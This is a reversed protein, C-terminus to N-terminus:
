EIAAFVTFLSAKEKAKRTKYTLKLIYLPNPQLIKRLSPELYPPIGQDHMTVYQRDAGKRM